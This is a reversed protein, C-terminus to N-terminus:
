VTFTQTIDPQLLTRSLPTHRVRNNEVYFIGYTSLFKLLRTLPGIDQNTVTRKIFLAQHLSEISVADDSVLQHLNLHVAAYISSALVEYRSLTHILKRMTPEKTIFNYM